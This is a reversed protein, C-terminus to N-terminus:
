SVVYNGTKLVPLDFPTLRLAKKGEPPYYILGDSNEILLRYSTAGAPANSTIADRFEVSM